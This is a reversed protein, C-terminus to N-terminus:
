YKLTFSQTAGAFIPNDSPRFDITQEGGKSCSIRVKIQIPQGTQGPDAVHVVPRRSDVKKVMLACPKDVRVSLKGYKFEGPRYFVMQWVDLKKHRVVQIDATNSLIEIANNKCYKEMESATRKGPVVVYAYTANEPQRGHYFSVTFVKEEVPEKRNVSNNIDYWTGSQRQIGAVVRGGQPFLYGIGDHLVWDANEYVTEQAPLVEQKGDVSVVAEDSAALCQNVSTYVAESSTSHIDSGLCVVEDDFFFWAKHAGTNIDKYTDMYAYTTVGYLSDSVGGAFTSTGMCQWDSAALPIEKLQPATVGPIRTWNWAPFINFYEGGRTTINTCGDSLFYTKLNEGNGYECRATRASVLRVDFAYQPRVHLTYDGRFYHTHKPQLGDGPAKTGEMRAVIDRFEDAHEKDLEVMRKAFLITRSKDLIDPRSISRGLVDYSMYKGRMVAYYTERMFKSILELKDQPMAFRTGRTYMAVQTVGKLIEDGYGGIYLQQGHQFNSNDHQFGEKTTYVVPNYVNELAYALDEANRQLCSRYIWHLAIDTRNAGTWKSPDGGDERVRDLIKKELDAPLQKKGTRMQILLVGLKQPESIQNYWWNHCWPNREHWFELGKVIKDYLAEEGFHKNKPNTYAFVFDSIREVHVLPPWNTRQISAYDVDTFSGDQENYKALAEDIAPNAVFDQRIKQMLTEFEDGSQLGNQAQAPIGLGIVMGLVVLWLRLNIRM